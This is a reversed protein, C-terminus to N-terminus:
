HTRLIHMELLNGFEWTSSISSIWPGCKSFWQKRSHQNSITFNQSEEFVFATKREYIYM